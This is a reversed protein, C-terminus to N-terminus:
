VMKDALELWRDSKTELQKIITELDQSIKTIQEINDGANQIDATLAEKKNELQAIDKELEEYEFKEKFSIKVAPKPKEVVKPAEVKPATKAANKEKAEIKDQETRWDRYESYNGPYDKIVGDGEFAFVHDVVKDLFFRDHSVIAVCGDFEALFDELIVLTQIDLDNTPEDLILFNPNKMLITLLYLRKKEGGSLTKVYQYQKDPTFLFRELMQGASLSKGGSLPIVEAVDKVVEIVRKHDYNQIGKQTYYGIEVTEGIVVKGSDPKQDLTIMNLLTSKGTGNKGVIGINEKRKFLYSFDNIYTKGDYAKSVKHLEVIKTGLRTTKVDLLVDNQKLNKHAKEKTDDFADVRYKAKTGRAKPMRRIWELERKYLNKAKDVSASEAMMREAKKETYYSYNGSYSQIEGNELEIIQNCIRDLFYRDHTILLFTLNDRGLYKELWEIMEIDLHNTPEDLLLFEPEDALLKALALRKKQGGSLMGVKKELLDNLKLNGAIQKSNTEFEWAQHTDMLEFAHQMEDNDGSELAKNYAHLAQLAPHSGSLLVDQVIAENDFVEDQNLFGIRIGDRFVVQGSECTDLGAIIRFLTSKGTGNKAILATKQGKEMGFGVGSLIKREGYYKVLEEVSLYNM